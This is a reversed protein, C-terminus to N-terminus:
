EKGELNRLVKVADRIEDLKDQLDDLKERLEINEDLLKNVAESSLVTAPGKVLSKMFMEVDRHHNVTYERDLPLSATVTLVDAAIGSCLECDEVKWDRVREAMYESM